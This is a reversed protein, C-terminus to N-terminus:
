YLSINGLDQANEISKIKLKKFKGEIDILIYEKNKRDMINLVFDKGENEFVIDWKNFNKELLYIKGTDSLIIVSNENNKINFLNGEAKLEYILNNKINIIFIRGESCSVIIENSNEIKETKLISTELNIKNKVKFSNSYEIVELSGNESFAIILSDSFVLFDVLNEIKIKEKFVEVNEDIKFLYIEEDLSALFINKYLHGVKNYKLESFIKGILQIKVNEESINFIDIEGNKIFFLIENNIKIASKISKNKLEKIELLTINEKVKLIYATNKTYLIYFDENIKVYNELFGSFTYSGIEKYNSITFSSKFKDNIRFYPILHNLLIEQKIKLEDIQSQLNKNYEGTIKIELLQSRLSEIENKYEKYDIPLNIKMNIM